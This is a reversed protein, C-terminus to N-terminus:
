RFGAASQQTNSHLNRFWCKGDKRRVDYVMGDGKRLGQRSEEIASAVKVSWWPAACGSALVVVMVRMVDLHSLYLVRALLKLVLWVERVM